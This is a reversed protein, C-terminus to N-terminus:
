VYLVIPVPTHPSGLDLLQSESAARSLTCPCPSGPAPLSQGSYTRWHTPIGKRFSLSTSVTSNCITRQYARERSEPLIEPKSGTAWAGTQLHRHPVCVSSSVPSRWKIQRYILAPTDLQTSQQSHPWAKLSLSRHLGRLRPEGHVSYATPRNQLDLSTLLTSTLSSLM